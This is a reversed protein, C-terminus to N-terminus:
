RGSVHLNKSLKYVGAKSRYLPLQHPKIYTYNIHLFKRFFTGVTIQCGTDKTSGEDM